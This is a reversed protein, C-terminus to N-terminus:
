QKYLHVTATARVFVALNYGFPFYDEILNTFEKIQPLDMERFKPNCLELGGFKPAQNKEEILFEM